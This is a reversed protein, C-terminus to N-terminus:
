SVLSASNRRRRRRRRVEVGGRRLVFLEADTRRLPIRDANLRPNLMAARRAAGGPRAVPGLLPSEFARLCAALQAPPGGSV